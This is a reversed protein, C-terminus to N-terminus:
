YPVSANESCLSMRPGYLWYSSHPLSVWDNCGNGNVFWLGTQPEHKKRAAAYNAHPDPANLWNLLRRYEEKSHFDDTKTDLSALTGQIQDLKTLRATSSDIQFIDLLLQLNGRLDTVIDQLKGLTGKKFPYLMKQYKSPHGHTQLKQLKQALKAMAGSCAQISGEVHSAIHQAEQAGSLASHLIELTKSLALISSFTDQIENASDKWAEYYALLGQAVTIGLSVIGVAPGAMSFPDAM